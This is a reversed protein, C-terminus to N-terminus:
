PLIGAKKLKRIKEQVQRDNLKLPRGVRKGDILQVLQDSDAYVGYDAGDIEVEYQSHSELGRLHDIVDEASPEGGDRKYLTKWANCVAANIGERRKNSQGVKRGSEAAVQDSHALVHLQTEVASLVAEINGAANEAQIKEATRKLEDSDRKKM